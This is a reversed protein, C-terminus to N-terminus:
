IASLIQKIIKLPHDPEIYIYTKRLTSVGQQEIQAERRFLKSRGNQEM